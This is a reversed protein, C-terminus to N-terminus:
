LEPDVEEMEPDPAAQYLYNDLAVFFKRRNKQHKLALVDTKEVKM